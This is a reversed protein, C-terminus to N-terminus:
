RCGGVSLAARGSLRAADIRRSFSANPPSLLAHLQYFSKEQTTQDDRGKGYGAIHQPWLSKRSQEPRRGRDCQGCEAKSQEGLAFLIRGKLRPRHNGPRGGKEGIREGADVEHRPPM